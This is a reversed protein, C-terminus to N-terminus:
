KRYIDRWYTLVNQLGMRYEYVPQWGTAKNLKTNDGIFYKVEAPRFKDEDVTVRIECEALSLMDHLADRISVANGSCVNYIGGDADSELLAAYARVVDDVYTFDRAASIDGVSIEPVALGYEIAAIQSAFDAIVFGKAQGPGYHNFSRTSIVKMGYKRGFQCIIQEASYKSISYPNQPKCPMEETLPIGAKATLGYEDSSGINIFRGQPNAAYFAQLVNLAGHINVDVTLGPKQWSVPVNSIAALHIVADPVEEKMVENLVDIDLINVIHTKIRMAKLFTGNNIGIAVVDHKRHLLFRILHEGVFGGAGTVLVKM